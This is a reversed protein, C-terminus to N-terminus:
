GQEAQVQEADYEELAHCRTCQTVRVRELPIGQWIPVGKKNRLFDCRCPFARLAQALLTVTRESTM